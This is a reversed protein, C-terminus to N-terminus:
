ASADPLAQAQDFEQKTIFTGGQIQRDTERYGRDFQVTLQMMRFCNKGMVDKTAVYGSVADGEGEFQQELDWRRDIRVRVGEGCKGCRVYYYVAHQDSTSTEGSKEGRGRGFLWGLISM